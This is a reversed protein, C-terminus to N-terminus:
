AYFEEDQIRHGNARLWKEHNIKRLERVEAERALYSHEVELETHRTGRRREREIFGNLSSIRRNLEDDPMVAIDDTSLTRSKM